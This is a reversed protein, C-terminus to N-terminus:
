LLANKKQREGLQLELCNGKWEVVLKEAPQEPVATPQQCLHERQLCLNLSLSPSFLFAVLYQFAGPTQVLPHIDLILLLKEGAGVRDAIYMHRRGTM